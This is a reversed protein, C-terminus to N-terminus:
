QNIIQFPFDKTCTLKQAENKATGESFFGIEIEGHSPNEITIIRCLTGGLFFWDDPELAAASLHRTDM